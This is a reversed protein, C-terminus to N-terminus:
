GHFRYYEKLTMIEIDYDKEELEEILIDIDGTDGTLMWYEDWSSLGILGRYDQMLKYEIDMHGISEKIFDESEIFWCRIVITKTNM